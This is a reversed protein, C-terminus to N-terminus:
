NRRKRNKWICLALAIPLCGASFLLLGRRIGAWYMSHWTSDAQQVEPLQSEAPEKTEEKPAIRHGRVLLRHTNIGYPTCTLLTVYDKDQELVLADTQTPLVTLCQDVEYTLVSGLVHIYFVDGIQLQGLDTFMPCSSTASHASIVAHTGVGGIPLSTNPMHGAGKQLAAAGVGHYVPLMVDITPIQVHAMIGDDTLWLLSEYEEGNPALQVGGSHAAQEALRRNYAEALSKEKELVEAAANELEKQIQAYVESSHRQSYISGLIPYAVFAIGCLLLIVAPILWKKM